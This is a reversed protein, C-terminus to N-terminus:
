QPAMELTDMLLSPDALCESFEDALRESEGIVKRWYVLRDEDTMDTFNKREPIKGSPLSAVYEDSPALMLLNDWTAGKARRSTNNKDFWGPVIHSYFHPYLVIGDELAWPIDFHYDIVGGDRYVGKPAGAIDIIPDAVFPISGSAMLADILAAPELKVDTRRFDTWSGPCPVGKGTHFVVRDFFKSLYQRDVANVSASALIAAGERWKAGEPIGRSRVAVINLNRNANNVIRGADESGYLRDLFAYSYRTLDKATKIDSAKFEFYLEIFREIMKAPEPHAANALRWAGISSGVFDIQQPAAPLWEGFIKKDLELLALWKPGGSAGIVMRVLDPTLGGEAIRRRATAGAILKLARM